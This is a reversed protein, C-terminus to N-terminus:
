RCRLAELPLDHDLALDQRVTSVLEDELVLGRAVVRIPHDGPLLGRGFRRAWASIPEAPVLVSLTDGDIRPMPWVRDQGRGTRGLVLTAVISSETCGQGGRHASEVAGLLIAAALCVLSDGSASGPTSWARRRVTFRYPRAARPPTARAETMTPQPARGLGVSGRRSTGRWTCKAPLMAHLANGYPHEAVRLTMPTSSGTSATRGDAVPIRHIVAAVPSVM